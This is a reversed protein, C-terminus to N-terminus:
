LSTTNNLTEHTEYKDLLFREFNTKNVTPWESQVNIINNCTLVLWDLGSEQYFNGLLMIQDIM